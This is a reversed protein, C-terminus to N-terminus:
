SSRQKKPPTKKRARKTKKSAKRKTKQQRSSAPKSVTETSGEDEANDADDMAAVDTVVSGFGSQCVRQLARSLIREVQAPDDTDALTQRLARVLRKLGVRVASAMAAQQEDAESRLIYRGRERENEFRRGKAQEMRDIITAWREPDQRRIRLLQEASPPAYPDDDDDIAGDDDQPADGKPRIRERNEALLDHFARLVHALDLERGRLPLKYRDAQENVVKPQRGALECYDRKPLHQYLRWRQEEERQKELKRLAAQQRATPTEGARQKEIAERALQQDIQESASADNGAVRHRRARDKAGDSKGSEAM